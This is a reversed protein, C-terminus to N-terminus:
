KKDHKEDHGLDKGDGADVMVERVKSDAGKVKVEYVLCGHEVELKAKKVASGTPAGTSALAAKEADAPTIKAMAALDSKSTGKPPHTSCPMNGALAVGSAAVFALASVIPRIKM